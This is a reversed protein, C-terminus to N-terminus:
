RVVNAARLAALEDADFGAERLIADTHEGPGPAPTPALDRPTVPTRYYRVTEEGAKGEFFLGRAAIQPDSLLEDPRLAPEFCVDHEANFAEWERRTKQAIVEAFRRKLEVQHPGPMLASLDVEIANAACFKTLFKPELAGLTMTEGDATTYTDYPAVGGTLLENGREPLEGGLIKSLAITAFPVVSDLMAIDLVQGRGTQDRERLSALIAIVSWLGGSVDALQFPPITAKSEAPGGLGVLGARALYNLDHGARSKLPGTQGYGTLACIVLKPCLELLRQHGIGLRDLVGPRFQEFLVDYHPLLREFVRVGESSKLDLVASRKGRNLAHFAAGHPGVVPPAHRTYDGLNPDEIKDVQAGLEALVLTAFPGPLLRTLDLVRVGSLAAM